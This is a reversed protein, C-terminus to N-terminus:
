KELAFLKSVKLYSFVTHSNYFHQYHKAKYVPPCGPENSPSIPVEVFLQEFLKNIWLNSESTPQWKLLKVVLLWTFLHFNIIMIYLFNKNRSEKYSDYCVFFGKNRYIWILYNLVFAEYSESQLYHFIHTVFEKTPMPIEGRDVRSCLIYSCGTQLKDDQIQSTVTNM